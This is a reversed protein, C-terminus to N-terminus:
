SYQLSDKAPQMGKLARILAKTQREASFAKCACHNPLLQALRGDTWANVLQRLTAVIELPSDVNAVTRVGVERLIRRTEDAPLIGLIPRRAKLYYFLKAGAVLENGKKEPGRGLILLTHSERQLRCIEEFSVPGQTVILDSVGLGAAQSAVLESGEGVFHFQLQKARQLDTSKLLQL